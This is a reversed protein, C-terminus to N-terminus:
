GRATRRGAEIKAKRYNKYGLVVSLIIVLQLHRRIGAIQAPALWDQEQGTLLGEMPDWFIFISFAMSFVLTYKLIQLGFLKVDGATV